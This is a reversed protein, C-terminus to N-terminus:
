GDFLASRVSLHSFLALSSLATHGGGGSVGSLPAQLGPLSQMQSALTLPGLGAEEPSPGRDSGCSGAM